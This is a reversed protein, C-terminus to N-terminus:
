DQSWLGDFIDSVSENLNINDAAGVSNPDDYDSHTGSNITIPATVNNNKTNSKYVFLFPIGLLLFIVSFIIWLM